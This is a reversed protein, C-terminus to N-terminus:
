SSTASSPPCDLTGPHLRPISSIQMDNGLICWWSVATESHWQLRPEPRTNFPMLLRTTQVPCSDEPSQLGSIHPKERRSSWDRREQIRLTSPRVSPHAVLLSPLMKVGSRHHKHAQVWVRLQRQKQIQEKAPGLNSSQEQRSWPPHSEPRNEPPVANRRMAPLGQWVTGQASPRPPLEPPNGGDCNTGSPGRRSLDRCLPRPRFPCHLM